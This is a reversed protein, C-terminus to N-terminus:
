LMISREVGLGITVRLRATAVAMTCPGAAPSATASLTASGSDREGGGRCGDTSVELLHGTIVNRSDGFIAAGCLLRRAHGFAVVQQQAGCAQADAVRLSVPSRATRRM